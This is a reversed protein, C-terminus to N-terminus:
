PWQLLQWLVQTLSKYRKSSFVRRNGCICPCQTSLHLYTIHLIQKKVQARGNPRLGVSLKGIRLWFMKCWIRSCLSLVHTWALADRCLTQIPTAIHTMATISSWLILGPSKNPNVVCVCNDGMLYSLIALPITSLWCSFICVLPQFDPHEYTHAKTGDSRSLIISYAFVFPAHPSPSLVDNGMLSRTSSLSSVLLTHLSFATTCTWLPRSRSSHPTMSSCSLICQPEFLLKSLVFIHQAVSHPSVASYMILKHPIRKEM